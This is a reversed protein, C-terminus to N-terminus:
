CLRFPVYLAVILLYGTKQSHTAILAAALTFPVTSFQAARILNDSTVLSPYWKDLQRTINHSWVTGMALIAGDATSM